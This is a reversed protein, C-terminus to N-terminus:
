SSAMSKSWASPFTEKASRLTPKRTAPDKPTTDVRRIVHSRTRAKEENSIGNEDTQDFFARIAEHDRNNM